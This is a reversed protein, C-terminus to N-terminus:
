RPKQIFPLFLDKHRFVLFACGLIMVLGNTLYSDFLFIHMGYINVVVPILALLALPVFANLVLAIGALLETLKVLHMMFGTDWMGKIIQYPGQPLGLEELPTVIGVGSNTILVYGIYIRLSFEFIEIAELKHLVKQIVM